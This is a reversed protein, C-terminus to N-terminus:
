EQEGIEIHQEGFHERVFAYQALLGPQANANTFKTYTFGVVPLGHYEHMILANNTQNGRDNVISQNVESGLNLLFKGNDFAGFPTYFDITNESQNSTLISQYEERENSPNKAIFNVVSGKILDTPIPPCLGVICQFLDLESERNFYAINHSYYHPFKFYGSNNPSVSFPLQSSENNLHYHATPFSAIFETQAAVAQDLNFENNLTSKMLLASVAEYGTPWTTNIAQGDVILLSDKTGTSLDPTEDGAATHQINDEGYFGDMHIIPINASHGQEVDMLTVEAHLGGTAATMQNKSNNAWVEGSQWMQKIMECNRHVLPAETPDVTGMEIIEITGNEWLWDEDIAIDENNPFGVTCSEDNSVM